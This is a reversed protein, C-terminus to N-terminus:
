QQSAPTVDLARARGIVVKSPCDTMCPVNKMQADPRDDASFLEQNPLIIKGINDPGLIIDEAVLDNSFLLYATLAYVEDNTLSQADGFPMTRKTYDFVIAAYPWFSGITKVPREDQLTGQGGILGVVQGVGEGFDGHCAACKEFYIEEGEAVTGRGPPAGDGNPEVDIDWAKLREPNPATGVTPFVRQDAHASSAMLVVIVTVVFRKAWGSM